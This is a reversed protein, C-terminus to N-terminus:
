KLPPIAQPTLPRIPQEKLKKQLLSIATEL